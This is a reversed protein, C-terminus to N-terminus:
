LRVKKSCSCFLLVIARVASWDHGVDCTVLHILAPAEALTQVEQVAEQSEWRPAADSEQLSEDEGM